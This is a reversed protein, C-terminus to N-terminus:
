LFAATMKEIVKDESHLSLFFKVIGLYKDQKEWKEPYEKLVPALKSTKDPLNGIKLSTFEHEINEQFQSLKCLSDATRKGLDVPIFNDNLIFKYVQPLNTKLIDTISCLEELNIRINKLSNIRSM